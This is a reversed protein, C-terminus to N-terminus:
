RAAGGSRPRVEGVSRPTTPSAVRSRAMRTRAARRRVSSPPRRPRRRAAATRPSASATGPRLATAVASDRDERRPHPVTRDRRQAVDGARRAATPARDRELVRRSAPRGRREASRARREAFPAPSRRRSCDSVRPRVVGPPRPSTAVFDASRVLGIEVAGLAPLRDPSRTAPEDRTSPTPPAVPRRTISAATRRRRRGGWVTTAPWDRASNLVDFRRDSRGQSTSAAHKEGRRAVDSRAARAHSCPGPSSQLCSPSRTLLRRFLGRARLSGARPCPPARPRTLSRMVLQAPGSQSRASGRARRRSPCSSGAGRRAALLVEAALAEAVVRAVERAVVVQEDERPGVHDALDM